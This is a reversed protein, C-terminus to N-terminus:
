LSPSTTHPSSAARGPAKALLDSFKEWALYGACLSFGKSGFHTTHSLNLGECQPNVVNWHHVNESLWLEISTLLSPNLLKRREVEVNFVDRTGPAHHRIVSARLRSGQACGLMLPPYVAAALTHVRIPVNM